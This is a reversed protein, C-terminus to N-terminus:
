IYPACAEKCALIVDGMCIYVHLKIERDFNPMTVCEM